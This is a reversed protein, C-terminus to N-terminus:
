MRCNINIIKFIMEINRNIKKKFIDFKCTLFGDHTDYVSIGLKDQSSINPFGSFIPIMYFGAPNNIDPLKYYKMGDASKISLYEDFSETNKLDENYAVLNDKTMNGRYMNGMFSLKDFLLSDGIDLPSNSLDIDTNGIYMMFKKYEFAYVPNISIDEKLPIIYMVTDDVIIQLTNFSTVLCTTSPLLTKSVIGEVIKKIEELRHDVIVM